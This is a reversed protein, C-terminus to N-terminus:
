QKVEEFVLPNVWYLGSCEDIDEILFMGLVDDWCPKKQKDKRKANDKSLFAMGVLNRFIKLAEQALVLPHDILSFFPLHSPNVVYTYLM